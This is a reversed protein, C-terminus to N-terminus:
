EYRLAEVPNRSAARWSLWSVTLLAVAMAVAGAVAFVWWNLDTRYAFNQLWKHMIYWSVPCAIVFAFFVWIMFDRNLLAIVQFERAGNIKRIGIEKIRFRLLLHVLGFLGILSILIALGFFLNFLKLLSHEKDYQDTILDDIFRYEFPREPEFKKWVHQIDTLIKEHNTEEIRIINNWGKEFITFQIPQILDRLSGIHFNNMIGAVQVNSEGLMYQKGVIRDGINFCKVAEENIVAFDATSSTDERLEELQNRVPIDLVDFFNAAVSAHYIDLKNSGEVQVPWYNGLHGPLPLNGSTFGLVGSIKGIEEKFARYHDFTGPTSWFSILSSYRYGLNGKTSEHLQKKIVVSAILLVMAITFQITILGNRFWSKSKLNDPSSITLTKSIYNAPYLGSL